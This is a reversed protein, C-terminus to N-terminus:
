IRSLLMAKLEDPGSALLDAGAAELEERGRFGWLCGAGLAGANHAFRIDVDSDGCYVVEGPKLGLKEAVHFFSAPDPKVPFPEQQGFVLDVANERFLTMVRATQDAPKNTIVATKLGAARLDELMAETGAYPRTRATCNEGYRRRYRGILEELLNERGAPLTRQCLKRIGNGVKHRYEAESYGPLGLEELAGNVAAAIDALSNVLTGDLDFFVGRIM